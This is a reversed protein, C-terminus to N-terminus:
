QLPHLLGTSQDETSKPNLLLQTRESAARHTTSTIVAVITDQLRRNNHDAQVVLAPRLKHAAQGSFQIQILVVDGRRITM